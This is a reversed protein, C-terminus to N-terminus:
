SFAFKAGLLQLQQWKQDTNPGAVVASDQIHGINNVAVCIDVVARGTIESYKRTDTKKQEKKTQKNKNTEKYLPNWYAPSVVSDKSSIKWKWIWHVRNIQRIIRLWM